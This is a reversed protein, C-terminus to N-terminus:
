YMQTRFKKTQELKKIVPFMTPTFMHPTIHPPFLYFDINLYVSIERICMFTDILMDILVHRSVPSRRSSM